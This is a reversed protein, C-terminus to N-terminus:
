KYVEYILCVLGNSTCKPIGNACAQWCESACFISDKDCITAQLGHKVRIETWRAFEQESFNEQAKKKKLLRNYDIADQYDQEAGAFEQGESTKIIASPASLTGVGYVEKTADTIITPSTTEIFCYSTANVSFKEPCKIGVAAHNEKDFILLASGFGLRGLLYALLFSKEICVGSNNYIVTYPYKDKTSNLTFSEIDYPINQVLAVTARAQDDRDPTLKRITEVIAGLQAQQVPDSTLQGYVKEAIEAASPPNGNYHYTFGGQKQLYQRVGPYVLFSLSYAQGNLTFNLLRTQTASFSLNEPLPPTKTQLIIVPTEPATNSYNEATPIPRLTPIPMIPLATPQIKPPIATPHTQLVAFYSIADIAVSFFALIAIIALINALSFIANNQSLPEVLAPPPTKEQKPM